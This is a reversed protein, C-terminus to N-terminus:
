WDLGLERLRERLLDIRLLRVATEDEVLVAVVRGDESAVMETVPGSLSGFALIEVLRGDLLSWLKLERDRSASVM